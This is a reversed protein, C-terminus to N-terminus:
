CNVRRWSSSTRVKNWEKTAAAALRRPLLSAHFDFAFSIDRRETETKQPLRGFDGHRLPREGFIGVDLETSTRHVFQALLDARAVVREAIGKHLESRGFLP